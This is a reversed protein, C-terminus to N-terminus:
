KISIKYILTFFTPSSPETCVRLDVYEKYYIKWDEKKEESNLFTNVKTECIFEKIQIKNM